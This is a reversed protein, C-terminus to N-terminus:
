PVPSCSVTGNANITNIVGGSCTGTVRRQIYNTNISVTGVGTIPNSSLTIGNGQTLAISVGTNFMTAPVWSGVGNTDSQLVYNTAQTGNELLFDGYVRFSNVGLTGQKYQDVGGTHLVPPMNTAPAPLVPATWAYVTFISACLGSMIGLFSVIIRM